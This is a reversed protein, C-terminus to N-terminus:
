TRSSQWEATEKPSLDLSERLERIWSVRAANREDLKAQETRHYTIDRQASEMERALWGAATLAREPPATPEHCDFRLSSDIQELMFAKLGEHDATPPEWAGVQERMHEYRRKLGYYDGWALKYRKIEDEHERDAADAADATSMEILEQLRAEAETIRDVHYSTTEVVNQETPLVDASDDRLMIASGFARSCNLAYEAFSLPTGEYMPATYGTPM